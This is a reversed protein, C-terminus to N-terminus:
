SSQPTALGSFQITPSSSLISQGSPCTAVNTDSSTLLCAGTLAAQVSVLNVGAPLAETGTPTTASISVVVPASEPPSTVQSSGGCGGLFALVLPLAALTLVKNRV